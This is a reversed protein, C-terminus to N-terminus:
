ENFDGKTPTTIAQREDVLTFLNKGVRIVNGGTKDCRNLVAAVTNAFNRSKAPYGGAVIAMALENATQPKKSQSLVFRAATLISQGNYLTATASTQQTYGPKLQGSQHESSHSLVDGLYTPKQLSVLAEIGLIAQDIQERKARLDGLIVAYDIHPKKTMAYAKKYIGFLMITFFEFCDDM